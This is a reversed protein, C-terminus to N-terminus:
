EKIAKTNPIMSVIYCWPLLMYHGEDTVFHAQGTSLGNVNTLKVHSYRKLTNQKLDYPKLNYLDVSKVVVELDYYKDIANNVIKTLKKQEETM